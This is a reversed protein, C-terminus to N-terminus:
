MVKKARMKFLIRYGCDLCKLNEDRIRISVTKGCGKILLVFIIFKSGCSYNVFV